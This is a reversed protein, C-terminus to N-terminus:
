APSFLEVEGLTSAATATTWRGVLVASASVNSFAGAAATYALDGVASTVGSTLLAPVKNGGQISVAELYTSADAATITIYDGRATADQVVCTGDSARTVRVGRALPSAGAKITRPQIGIYTAQEAM